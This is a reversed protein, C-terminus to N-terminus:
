DGDHEGGKKQAEEAETRTLFWTKGLDRKLCDDMGQHHLAYNGNAWVTTASIHRPSIGVSLAHKKSRLQYVTVGSPKCPLVVCRGDKHARVLETAEALGVGSFTLQTPLVVCRGDKEADVLERLHALPGLAKYANLEHLAGAIKFMDKASIIEEPELGTDEYAALRAAFLDLLEEVTYKEQLIWSVGAVRGNEQDGFWETLREM